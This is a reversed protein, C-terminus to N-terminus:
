KGIRDRSYYTGSCLPLYYNYGTTLEVEKLNDNKLNQYATHTTYMQASTLNFYNYFNAKNSVDDWTVDLQYWEGSLEVINWMHAVGDATGRVLTCNIGARKCLLQMARSYGECVAKGDLLAGYATYCMQGNESTYVVTDCLYDHFYVEKEFYSLSETNNLIESVKNEILTRKQDRESSEMEYKLTLYYDGHTDMLVEYSGSVWFIEPHDSLLGCLAINVNGSLEEDNHTILFPETNMSEVQTYITNYYGKQVDTMHEYWYDTVPQQAASPPLVDDAIDSEATAPTEDSSVASSVSSNGANIDTDAPANNCAACLPLVICLLLLLLRKM